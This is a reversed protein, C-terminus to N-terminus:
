VLGGPFCTATPIARTCVVLKLGGLRKKAGFKVATPASFTRAFENKPQLQQTLTHEPLVKSKLREEKSWRSVM